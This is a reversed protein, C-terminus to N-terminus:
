VVEANLITCSAFNEFKVCGVKAINVLRLFCRHLIYIYCTFFILIVRSVDEKSSALVCKNSITLDSSFSLVYLFWRRDLLKELRNGVTFPAPDDIYISSDRNAMWSSSRSSMSAHLSLRITLCVLCSYKRERSSILILDFEGNKCYRSHVRRCERLFMLVNAFPWDIFTLVIRSEILRCIKAEEVEKKINNAITYLESYFRRRTM